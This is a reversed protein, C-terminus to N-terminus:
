SIGLERLKKPTPVGTENWGMLAYYYQKANELQQPDLAKNSLAGGNRPTFFRAPLKDDQVSLGQRLNFLRCATLTREASNLLEEVTINWGTVAAMLTAVQEYTYRLFLCLVMSDLSINKLQVIRLLEIKKPGIDDFHASPYGLSAADPVTVTPPNKGDKFRFDAMNCCHDPGHPNIMYGLALAKNLRAEHMPVELKKVQIAFAHAGKGIKEAARASGEALIDGLGQRRVIKELMELMAEANGFRLEIGETDKKTLIGNEFCEMAFAITSGTSITDISYANCLANARALAALNDIGCNSGLAALSEYEPGGYAKDVEYPGKIEVVKKCRVPCAFCSNMGVRITEKIAQASINSVTPFIGDRFNRIPLNGMQEYAPMAAGTGLDRHKSFKQMHDVVWRRLAKVVEPNAIVPKMSGSVAVAKLNKSGMVAGLGGRGATDELGHMICAFCVRNEGGPGILAIRVKKNSLEERVASLAEKTNMGWLRSADKIQAEGNHIYVYVPQQSQGEFIVADFGARKLETGWYEGVESKAIGGTLPSKAGVCHRGSGPLPIGTIPGTAFVLRNQQGLPDSGPEVEKLLIGSVFGAGGIYQRCFTEDLPETKLTHDSLNVRLIKGSYGGYSHEPM